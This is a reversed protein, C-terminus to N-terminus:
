PVVTWTDLVFSSVCCVVWSGDAVTSGAVVSNVTVSAGSLAPLNM